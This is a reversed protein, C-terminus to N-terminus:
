IPTRWFTEARRWKEGSVFRIENLTNTWKLARSSIPIGIQLSFPVNEVFVCAVFVWSIIVLIRSCIVCVCMCVITGIMVDREVYNSMEM